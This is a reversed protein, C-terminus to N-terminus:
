IREEEALARTTAASAHKVAEALSRVFLDTMAGLNPNPALGTCYTVVTSSLAHVLTVLQDSKDTRPCIDAITKQARYVGILLECYALDTARQHPTKAELAKETMTKRLWEEARPDNIDFYGGLTVRAMTMM